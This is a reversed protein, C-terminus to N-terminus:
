HARHMATEGPQSPEMADIAEVRVGVEVTGAEAFTLEMDFTDGEAFTRKLGMLMIHLGGPELTLSEGPEIEIAEVPRMKAIDNEVLHTHLHAAEAAETSTAVLRDPADGTNTITLYVAGAHAMPPNARSWIHHVQIPGIEYVGGEMAHHALAPAVLLAGALAGAALTTRM